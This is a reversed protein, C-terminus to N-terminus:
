LWERSSRAMNSYECSSQFMFAGSLSCFGNSIVLCFGSLSRLFIFRLASLFNLYFLIIFILTHIVLKHYIVSKRALFLNKLRQMGGIDPKIYAARCYIARRMQTMCARRYCEVHKETVEVIQTVLYSIYPINSIYTMKLMIGVGAFVLNCLLCAKLLKLWHLDNLM